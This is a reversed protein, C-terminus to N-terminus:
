SWLRASIEAWLRAFAAAPASRPAFAAIPAREVSMREVVSAGPIVTTLLGPVHARLEEVVDRQLRKRRDHISVFPLLLPPDDREALFEALQDLTRRSLPTPITPVVLADAARFVAESALTIGPPCDLMALDYREALPELLAGLRRRSRKVDDLHLDLHRM